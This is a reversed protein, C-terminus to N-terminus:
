TDPDMEIAAVEWRDSVERVDLDYALTYRTGRTDRAQVVAAVAEGGEQSWSLRQVSELTLSQGPLSVKADDTLDAALEVGSSALYNRLAREVVMQLSPETVERLHAEVDAPAGTPAGVFAPYSALELAGDPARLVTVALYLLGASDTQAAVTYVREHPAAEREQVVDTWQVEEEGVAPPQLGAGPELTPGTFAALARQHAEPDDAQWSLYDRAFLQAYGEAALDQPSTPALDKPRQPRPPAIAFRLSAALGAISLAYLTYRPLERSLRIRWLPHARLLVRPRPGPTTPVRAGTV